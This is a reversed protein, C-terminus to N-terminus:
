IRSKMETSGLGALMVYQFCYFGHLLILYLKQKLVVLIALLLLCDQLCFNREKKKQLHASLSSARIRDQFGAADSAM